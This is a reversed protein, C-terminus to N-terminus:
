QRGPQLLSSGPHYCVKDSMSWDSPSSFLVSSKPNQGTEKSSSLKTDRRRYLDSEILEAALALYVSRPDSVFKRKWATNTDKKSDKGEQVKKWWERFRELGNDGEFEDVLERALVPGVGPLGDDYDGGLLYALRVLKDRNLNLERELDSLLYCELYKNGDFMHRYVRSAGFLFVDSDDTVVGDVLSRSLLSACEAEAEQPADLFPIGFYNLM